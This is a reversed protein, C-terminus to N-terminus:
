VVQKVTYKRRAAKEGWETKGTETGDKVVTCGDYTVPEEKHVKYNGCLVLEIICTKDSIMHDIVSIDILTIKGAQKEEWM